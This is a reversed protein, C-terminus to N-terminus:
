ELIVTVSGTFEVQSSYETHIANIVGETNVYCCAFNVPTNAVRMIAGGFFQQKSNFYPVTGLNTTGNNTSSTVFQIRYSVIKGRKVYTITGLSSPVRGTEIPYIEQGENNTLKGNTNPMFQGNVLM